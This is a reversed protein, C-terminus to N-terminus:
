ELKVIQRAGNQLRAVLARARTRLAEGWPTPVSMEGAEKRFAVIIDGVRLATRKKDSLNYAAPVPAGRDAVFLPVLFTMERMPETRLELLSIDPERPTLDRTPHVYQPRYISTECVLKEPLLPWVTLQAGNRIITWRNGQPSIQGQHHLLWSFTRPTKAALRDYVVVLDRGALVIIREFRTLGLEPPYASTADGAAITIDGATAFGTIHARGPNPRPWMEGDGYQGQGDVLITNHNRTRKEYTYGPDIALAEGRGFLVFHNQEPHNHGTGGLGYRACLEAWKHGGLPRCVFFLATAEPGWSTRAFINEVDPYYRALPMQALPEKQPEITEDLWLLNHRHSLPEKHLVNVLGMTFSDHFRKAEWLGLGTWPAGLTPSSDELPASHVFGPYLHRFRFEFQGRLGEDAAALKQGTCWEYLDIYLYLAPMSFDWYGPGEHFGGDPGMTLAIRELRDWAWALWDAAEPEEGYLAAAGLALALNAYWYHNQQYNFGGGQRGALSAGFIERCKAAINRRLRERLEAPLEKYLWDYSLAVGEMFYEADLDVGVSEYQTAEELWALIAQWQKPDPQLLYSFAYNGLMRFASGNRGKPNYAPPKRTLTEPLRYYHQVCPNQLRAQLRPLDAATFLLRPRQRVLEPRMPSLPPKLRIHQLQFQDIQAGPGERLTAEIIHKGPQRISFALDNAQWRGVALTLPTPQREGDVFLWLSDSGNDAAYAHLSFVYTGTALESEIRLRFDKGAVGIAKGEQLTFSLGTAYTALEQGKAQLLSEQSWLPREMLNNLNVGSFIGTYILAAWFLGHM